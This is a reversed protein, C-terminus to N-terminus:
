ITSMIKIPNRHKGLIPTKIGFKSNKSFFAKVFLLNESLKKMVLIKPHATPYGV